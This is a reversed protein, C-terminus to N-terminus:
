QNVPSYDANLLIYTFLVNNAADSAILEARVYKYKKGLNRLQSKRVQTNNTVSLQTLGAVSSNSNSKEFDQLGAIPVEEGAFAGTNSAQFQVIKVYDTTNPTGAFVNAEFTFGVNKFKSVDISPTFVSTTGVTISYSKTKIQSMFKM